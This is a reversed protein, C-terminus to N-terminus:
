EDDLGARRALDKAVQDRLPSWIPSVPEAEILGNVLRARRSTGIKSSIRVLSSCLVSYETLDIDQGLALKTNLAQLVISAGCFGEVLSKEVASLDGGLDSSIQSYLRDFAKAANTRGDLENRTLLKPKPPNKHRRKRPADPTWNLATDMGPVHALGAMKVLMAHGSHPYM